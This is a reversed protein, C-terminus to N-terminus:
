LSSLDDETWNPEGLRQDAKGEVADTNTLGPGSVDYALSSDRHFAVLKAEVSNSTIGTSAALNPASTRMVFIIALASALALGATPRLVWNIVKTRQRAKSALLVKENLASRWAMSVTEEPLAHVVKAVQQQGAGELRQDVNAILEEGNLM